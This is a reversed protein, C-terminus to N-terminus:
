PSAFRMIFTAGGGPTDAIAIEGGHIEMVRSVIALGIGVGDGRQDSRKFRRFVTAQQELPIGSGHDIVKISPSGDVRLTVTSAPPSYRLANEVLNRLAIVLANRDGKTRVPADAGLLEISRKERIAVPALATAVDRCVDGLDVNGAQDLLLGEMRALDMIKGILHTMSDVEERLSKQIPSVGLNDLRSKIVALPTRLEHAVDAAFAQYREMGDRLKREVHKRETIDEIIAAFLAPRETAMYELRVNVEYSTGDKRRHTAEFSVQEERGSRLPAILAEFSPRSFDPKLDVPTLTRLEALGYGLNRLAGRNAFVFRLTEADFIYIENLSEEIIRGFRASLGEAARRETVDLWFGLIREPQGRADKIVRSEDYMWRYSGDKIKFRYEHSHRGTDALGKLGAFVRDADDPHINAAWFASDELFQRPEYGTQARISPSVYLAGFDDSASSIYLVAPGRALLEDVAFQPPSTVASPSALDGSDPANDM